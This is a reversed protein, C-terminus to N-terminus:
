LKPIEQAPWVSSTIKDLHDDIGSQRRGNRSPLLFPVPFVLKHMPEARVSEHHHSLIACGGFFTTVLRVHVHHHRDVGKLKGDLYTGINHDEHSAVCIERIEGGLQASVADAHFNRGDGCIEPVYQSRSRAMHDIERWDKPRELHNVGAFRALPLCAPLLDSRWRLGASLL